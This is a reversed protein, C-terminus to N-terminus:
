APGCRPCLPTRWHTLCPASLLPPPPHPQPGGCVKGIFVDGKADKLFIGQKVGDEYPAYGQEQKIAPDVIVVMRQGNSHLKDALAKVKAAPFNDPDFTWDRYGRMYDIDM